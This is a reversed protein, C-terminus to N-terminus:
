GHMMVLRTRQKWRRDEVDVVMIGMTIIGEVRERRSDEEEEEEAAAPARM